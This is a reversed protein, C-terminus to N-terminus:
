KGRLGRKSKVKDSSSYPCERMYTFAVYFLALNLVALYMFIEYEHSGIVKNTLCKKEAIMIYIIQFTKM